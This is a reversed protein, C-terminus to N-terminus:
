KYHQTQRSILKKISLIGKLSEYEEDRVIFVCVM